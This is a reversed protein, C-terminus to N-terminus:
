FFSFWGRHNYFDHPVTEVLLMSGTGDANLSHGAHHWTFGDPKKGQALDEIDFYEDFKSLQASLASQAAPDDKIEEWLAKSAAKYDLDRLRGDSVNQRAATDIEIKVAPGRSYPIFNPVGNPDFTVSYINGDYTKGTYKVSGDALVHIRNIQDADLFERFWRTNSGANRVGHILGGPTFMDKTIEYSRGTALPNAGRISGLASDIKGKLEELSNRVDTPLRNWAAQPAAEMLDSIKELYPRVVLALHADNM